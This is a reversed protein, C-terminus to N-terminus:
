SAVTSSHPWLMYMQWAVLLATDVFPRADRVDAEVGDDREEEGSSIEM